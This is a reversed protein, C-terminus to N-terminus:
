MEWITITKNNYEATILGSTFNDPANMLNPLYVLGDKNSIGEDKYHINNCVLDATVKVGELLRNTTKDFFLFLANSHYCRIYDPNFKILSDFGIDVDVINLASKFYLRTNSDKQCIVCKNELVEDNPNTSTITDCYFLPYIKYLSGAIIVEIKFLNTQSFVDSLGMSFNNKITHHFQKLEDSTINSFYM